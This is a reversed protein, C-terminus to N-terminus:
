KYIYEQFGPLFEPVTGGREHMCFAYGDIFTKMRELSKKGLVGPCKRFDLLLKDISM